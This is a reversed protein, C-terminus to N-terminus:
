NLRSLGSRIKDYASRPASPSRGPAGAPIGSQQERRVAERISDAMRKAAQFSAEVEEATDGRVLGPDIAPDTALLALRLRELLDRNQEQESELAFRLQSDATPQDGSDDETAGPAELTSAADLSELEDQANSADDARQSQPDIASDM